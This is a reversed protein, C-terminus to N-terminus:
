LSLQAEGVCNLLCFKQLHFIIESISALPPCCKPKIVKSSKEDIVIKLAILNAKNPNKKKVKQCLM